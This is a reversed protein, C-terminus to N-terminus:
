KTFRYYSITETESPDWKAPKTIKICEVEGNAILHNLAERTFLPFQCGAIGPKGKIPKDNLINKTTEMASIKNMNTVEKIEM